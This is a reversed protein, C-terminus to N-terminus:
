WFAKRTSTGSYRSPTDYTSVRGVWVRLWLHGQHCLLKEFPMGVGYRTDLKTPKNALHISTVGPTYLMRLDNL